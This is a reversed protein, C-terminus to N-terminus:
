RGEECPGLAAGADELGESGPGVLSASPDVTLTGLGLLGSVLGAPAVAPIPPHGCSSCTCTAYAGCGDWSSSIACHLRGLCASQDPSAGDVWGRAEELRHEDGGRPPATVAGRGSERGDERRVDLGRLREAEEECRDEGDGSCAPGLEWNARPFRRAREAESGFASGMKLRRLPSLGVGESGQSRAKAGRRRFGELISIWCALAATKPRCNSAPRGRRPADADFDRLDSWIKTAERCAGM